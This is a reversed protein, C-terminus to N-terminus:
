YGYWPKKKKKVLSIGKFKCAAIEVKSIQDSDGYVYIKKCIPCEGFDDELGINWKQEFLMKFKEQYESDKKSIEYTTDFWGYLVDKTDFTLIRMLYPERSGQSTCCGGFVEFILLQIM